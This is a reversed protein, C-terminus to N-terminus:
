RKRRKPMKRPKKHDKKFDEKREPAYERKQGRRPRSYKPAKKLILRVKPGQEHRTAMTTSGSERMKHLIYVLMALIFIFAAAFKVTVLTDSPSQVVASGTIGEFGAMSYMVAVLFVALAATLLLRMSNNIQM